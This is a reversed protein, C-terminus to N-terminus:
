SLKGHLQDPLTNTSLGVLLAAKFQWSPPPETPSCQRPATGFHHRPRIYPSLLRASFAARSEVCGRLGFPARNSSLSYLASAIPPAELWPKSGPSSLSMAPQPRSLLPPFRSPLSRSPTSLDAPIQQLNNKAM